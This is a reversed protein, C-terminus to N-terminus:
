GLADQEDLCQVVEQLVGSVIPWSPQSELHDLHQGNVGRPALSEIVLVGVPQPTTGPLDIRKGLLSRSQMALARVEEAQMGWRDICVREWDARGAPLDTVCAAGLDWTHGIVGQTDPYRRRGAQELTQSGSTRAILFFSGAAHRYISVRSRSMDVDLDDLLARLVSNMITTLSTTRAAARSRAAREREIIRGVRPASVAAWATGVASSAVGAAFPAGQNEADVALLIAGAALLLSPANAWLSRGASLLARVV